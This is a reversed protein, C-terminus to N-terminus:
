TRFFAPRSPYKKRLYIRMHTLIVDTLVKQNKRMRTGPVYTTSTKVSATAESKPNDCVGHIQPTKKGNM